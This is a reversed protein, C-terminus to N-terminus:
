QSLPEESELGTEEPLICRRNEYDWVGGRDLCTDIKLFDPDFDHACFLAGCYIAIAGLVIWVPWALIVIANGLLIKRTPTM